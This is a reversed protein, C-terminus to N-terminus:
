LYDVFQKRFRIHLLSGIYILLLTTIWFYSMYIWDDFFWEKALFTNRLGDILYYLPNLKLIKVFIEPLKEMDWLIPL